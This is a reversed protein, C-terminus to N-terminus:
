EITLTVTIKKVKSVDSELIRTEYSIKPSILNKPMDKTKLINRLPKILGHPFSALVDDHERDRDM